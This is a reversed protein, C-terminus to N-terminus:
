SLAIGTIVGGAVTFTVTDVYTGTVPIQLAAANAVAAITAPFTGYAIVGNSVTFTANSIATGASNRIQISNGSSIAAVTAPLRAALLVGNANVFATSTIGAAGNVNQVSISDGNSKMGVTVPLAVTVEDGEVNFTAPKQVTGDANVLTTADGDAVIASGAPVSSYGAAELATMLQLIAADIDAAQAATIQTTNNVFRQTLNAAINARYGIDYRQQDTITILSM